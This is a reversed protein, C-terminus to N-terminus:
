AADGDKKRNEEDKRAQERNLVDRGADKMKGWTNQIKGKAQEAIGETEADWNGTWEGVQRQIRGKLGELRGKIRDKDM